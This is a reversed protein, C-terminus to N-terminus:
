DRKRKRRRGERWVHWRFLIASRKAGAPMKHLHRWLKAYLYMVRAATMSQIGNPWSGNKGIEESMGRLYQSRATFRGARGLFGLPLLAITRRRLLSGQPQQDPIVM